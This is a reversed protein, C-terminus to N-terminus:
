PGPVERAASVEGRLARLSDITYLLLAAWICGFSAWQLGSVGEGFVLVALLFHGTPTLYQFFGVTAFRLRRAAHAFWLLPIATVPGTALLLLDTARDAALFAGEGRVALWALYLLAPPLMAATEVTLGVLADPRATKRLLGYFGFTLALALAVWPGEGARTALIAVGLLALGVAVRQAPRLRERLFLAGLAVNVLPNVFYGLSSQLVRGTQIAWLFVLWNACLLLASAFLVTRDRPSRLAAGVERRRRSWAVLLICVPLAWVARHAVVELAPVGDLRKWYVPVIGWFGFTAVAYLGGTVADGKRHTAADL